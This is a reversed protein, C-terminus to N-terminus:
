LLCFCNFLYLTNRVRHADALRITIKYPNRIMKDASDTQGLSNVQLNILENVQKHNESPQNSIV